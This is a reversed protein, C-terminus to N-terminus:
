CDLGIVSRGVTSSNKVEESAEFISKVSQDHKPTWEIKTVEILRESNNVTHSEGVLKGSM